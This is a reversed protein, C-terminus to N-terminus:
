SGTGFEFLDFMRQFISVFIRVCLDTSRGCLFWKKFLCLGGICDFHFFFFALPSFINQFTIKERSYGSSSFNVETLFCNHHKNAEM